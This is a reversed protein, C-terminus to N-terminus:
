SRKRPRKIGAYSERQMEVWKGLRREADDTATAEPLRGHSEIFDRILYDWLPWVERKKGLLWDLIAKAEVNEGEKGDRNQKAKKKAM